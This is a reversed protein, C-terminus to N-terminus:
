AAADTAEWGAKVLEARRARAAAGIASPEWQEDADVLAAVGRTVVVTRGAIRRFKLTKDREMNYLSSVSVGLVGAARKLPLFATARWSEDVQAQPAPTSAMSLPARRLAGRDEIM